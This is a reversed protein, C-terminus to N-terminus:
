FFPREEGRMMVLLWGGGMMMVVMMVGWQLFRWCDFSVISSFSSDLFFILIWLFFFESFGVVLCWNELNKGKM